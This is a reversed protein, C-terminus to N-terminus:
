AEDGITGVACLAGFWLAAIAVGDDTGAGGMSGCVMSTSARGTALGATGGAAGCVTRGAVEDFVTTAGGIGCGTAVCACGGTM